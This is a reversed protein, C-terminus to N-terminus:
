GVPWVTRASTAAGRRRQTDFANDVWGATVPYDANAAGSHVVWDPGTGGALAAAAFTIAGRFDSTVRVDSAGDEDAATNLPGLYVRGRQRPINRTGYFSCCVAVENPLDTAAAAAPIVLEFSVPERPEPESLDYYRIENPLSTGRQVKNSLYKGLGDAGGSGFNYFSALKTHLTSTIDDRDGAFYFTNVFRDEPLQSVNDLLVLARITM